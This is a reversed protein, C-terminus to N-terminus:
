EAILNDLINRVDKSNWNAAGSKDIVINGAKDIIFTRPISRTQLNKPINTLPKFVKFTYDHKDIFKQIVPRNEESVLLFEIKDNYDDYLEQLAPMEAICPPCWTAWFNILIVKDKAQSFDYDQNDISKLKWRYDQLQKRNNESTLSPSFLALGKHLFVQIPQRTQPIIMLIIIAVFLLNSIKPKQFTM